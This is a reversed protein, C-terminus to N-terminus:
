NIALVHSNMKIVIFYTCVDSVQPFKVKPFSFALVALVVVV